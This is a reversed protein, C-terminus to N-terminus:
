QEKEEQQVRDKPRKSWLGAAGVIAGFLAVRWLHNMDAEKGSTLYDAMSTTAGGIAAALLTELAQQWKSTQMKFSKVEFTNYGALQGTFIM